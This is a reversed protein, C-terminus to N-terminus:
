DTFHLNNLIHMFQAKDEKSDYACKGSLIYQTQGLRKLLARINGCIGGESYVITRVGNKTVDSDIDILNEETLKSVIEHDPPYADLAFIYTDSGEACGRCIPGIYLKWLSKGIGAYHFGPGSLEPKPWNADYYFCVGLNPNNYKGDVSKGSCKKPDPLLVKVTESYGPEPPPNEQIDVLEALYLSNMMEAMEGRTLTKDFPFASEPMARRRNIYDVFRGYWEGGTYPPLTRVPHGAVSLIDTNAVIKAAEAVNVTQEPRFTGDPYGSAIKHQVALCLPKAYWETRSADAFDYIVNPDCFGLARPTFKSTIVIKVFEARNIPADPRYTGDDYGRVVGRDYLANIAEEYPHGSVDSFTDSVRARTVFPMTLIVIVLIGITLKFFQKM